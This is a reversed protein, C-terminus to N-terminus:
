PSRALPVHGPHQLHHRRLPRRGGIDEYYPIKYLEFTDRKETYPVGPDAQKLMDAISFVTSTM